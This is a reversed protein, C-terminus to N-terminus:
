KHRKLEDLYIDFSDARVLCPSAGYRQFHKSELEHKSKFAKELSTTKINGLLGNTQTTYPCAMFEGSPNVAIGWESYGCLGNSGLTLPGGSESMIKILESYNNISERHMLVDWNVIANGLPALPNCIFYIDDSCFRRIDPLEDHNIGSVTTNLAISLIIIGEKTIITDKYLERLTQINRLAYKLQNKTGTLLNYRDTNLSDLSIVIVTNNKKYFEILKKNLMRGNSYIIPIMNLSNIESVLETTDKHLSPEGEGAIVAIKGGLYKAQHILNLRDELTLVEKSSHVSKNKVINFCKPCKYNCDFELNIMLYTFESLEGTTSLHKPTGKVVKM